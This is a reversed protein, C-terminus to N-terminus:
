AAEPRHAIMADAVQSLARRWAAEAEPSWRAGAHAALTEILVENMIRYHEPKVGLAAHGTGLEQLLGTLRQPADLAGVIIGLATMFRMGQDGLDGRFLARMEASQSLVRGYFAASAEEIKERADAHTARILSMESQSLQM